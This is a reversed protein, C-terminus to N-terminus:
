FPIDDDEFTDTPASSRGNGGGNGNANSGGYSGGNGNAKKRLAKIPNANIFAMCRELSKPETQKNLIEDAMLRTSPEYAGYIIIRTKVGNRGDYEEGQLILGIKKGVLAPYVEKKKEVEEKRDYDWITIKGEKTEVSRVKACALISNFTKYSPLEEGDGNHTYLSLPGAQQGNDAAFIINVSETGKDNKEYWAYKITGTYAGATTIRKGGSAAEKAANTDLNYNRSM